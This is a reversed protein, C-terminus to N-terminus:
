VKEIHARGLLGSPRGFLIALLVVFAVADKFHSTLYGASFAELLGLLLGGLVAGYINGVGGLMAACFGKFGLLTGQDYSTFTLPTIIVGALGGALAGFAFSWLVAHQVNIGVLSAAERDAAVARLAKGVITHEFFLHTLVMFVATIGIIWLTQMPISAGWLHFITDGSFGPYGAPNKGLTLMVASKTCIALGISILTILMPTSTRLPAVVLRESLIGVACAVLLAVAVAPLLGIQTAFAAAATMGGLMVWEGQAFNLAGTSKFIVNFGVAILAYISGTGIGSLFLQLATSGM